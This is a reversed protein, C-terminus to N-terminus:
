SLTAKSLVGRDKHNEHRPFASLNFQRLRGAALISQRRHLPFAAEHGRIQDPEELFLGYYPQADDWCPALAYGTLPQGVAATVRDVAQTVHHESLKEGTLNAFRSGKGLFEILPTQHFFGTVRVLDEQSLNQGPFIIVLHDLWTQYIAKITEEDPKQRLDFGRIEAGIYETLPVVEFRAKTMVNM